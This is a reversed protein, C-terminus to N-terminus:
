YVLSVCLLGSKLMQFPRYQPQLLEAVSRSSIGYWGTVQLLDLRKGNEGPKDLCDAIGIFVDLVVNGGQKVDLCM